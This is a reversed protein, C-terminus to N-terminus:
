NRASPKAQEPRAPTKLAPPQPGKCIKGGARCGAVRIAAAVADLEEDHAAKQDRDGALQIVVRYRDSAFLVVSYFSEGHDGPPVYHFDFRTGVVGNASRAPSQGELSYGRGGLKEVLDRSWYALSGGRVNGFTVIRLGVNDGSKARLEAHGRDDRHFEAFGPPTDRLRFSGCGPTLVALLGGAVALRAARSDIRMAM